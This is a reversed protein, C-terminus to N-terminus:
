HELFGAAEATPPQCSTYQYVPNFSHRSLQEKAVPEVIGKEALMNYFGNYTRRFSWDVNYTDIGKQLERVVNTRSRNPDISLYYPQSKTKICEYLAMYICRRTDVLERKKSGKKKSFIEEKTMAFHKEAEAVIAETIEKARTIEERKQMEKMALRSFLMSRENYSNERSISKQIPNEM